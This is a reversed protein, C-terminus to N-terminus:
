KLNNKRLLAIGSSPAERAVLQINRDSHDLPTRGLDGDNLATTLFEVIATHGNKGPRFQRNAGLHQDFKRGGVRSLRDPNPAKHSVSSAVPVTHFEYRFAIIVVLAYM